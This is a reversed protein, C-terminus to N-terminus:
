SLRRNTQSLVPCVRRVSRALEEVASTRLQQNVVNASWGVVNAEHGNLTVSRSIWYNIRRAKQLRISDRPNELTFVMPSVEYTAQGRPAVPRGSGLIAELLRPYAEHFAGASEVIIPDRKAVRM